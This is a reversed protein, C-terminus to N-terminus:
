APVRAGWSRSYHGRWAEKCPVARPRLLSLNMRGVKSVCLNGAGQLCWFGSYASGGRPVGRMKGWSSRRHDEGM